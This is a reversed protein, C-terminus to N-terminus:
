MVFNVHLTDEIMKVFYSVKNRGLNTFSVIFTTPLAYTKNTHRFSM